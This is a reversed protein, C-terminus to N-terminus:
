KWNPFRPPNPRWQRCRSHRGESQVRVRETQAIRRARWTESQTIARIRRILKPQSEGLIVVQLMQSQLQETIRKDNGLNKYAIKTFPSQNESVLVSLQNEDYLTWDLALGAMRNISYTSFDYNIGYINSMEGRIIRAAINGADSIDRAIRKVQQTRRIQENAFATRKELPADPPLSALKEIWIRQNKVATMFAARYANEIRSILVRMREDSLAVGKDSM